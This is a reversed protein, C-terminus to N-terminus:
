SFFAGMFGAANSTIWRSSPCTTPDSRTTGPIKRNVGVGFSKSGIPVRVGAERYGDVNVIVGVEVRVLPNAVMVGIGVSSAISEVLVMVMVRAAGDAVGVGAAVFGAVSELVAVVLEVFVRVADAM